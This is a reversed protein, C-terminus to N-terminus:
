PQPVTGPAPAMIRAGGEVARMRDLMRGQSQELSTIRLDQKGLTIQQQNSQATIADVTKKLDQVSTVLNDIKSGLTGVGALTSGAYTGLGGLLLVILSALVGTVWKSTLGEGIAPTPAPPPKPAMAAMMAAIDAWSPADRNM